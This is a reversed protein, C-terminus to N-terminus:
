VGGVMVLGTVGVTDFVMVGLGIVAVGVFGSVVGLVVEDVTVAGEDGDVEMVAV